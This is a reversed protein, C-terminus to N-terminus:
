RHPSLIAPTLTFIFTRCPLAFGAVLYYYYPPELTRARDRAPNVAVSELRRSVVLGGAMPM